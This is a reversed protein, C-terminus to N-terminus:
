RVTEGARLVLDTPEGVLDLSVYDPRTREDPKEDRAVVDRQYDFPVTISDGGFSTEVIAPYAFLKDKYPELLPEGRAPGSAAALISALFLVNRWRM